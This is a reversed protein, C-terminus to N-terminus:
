AAKAQALYLRVAALTGPHVRLGGLARATTDSSLGLGAVVEQEGLREVADRLADRLDSPIPAGIKRNTM